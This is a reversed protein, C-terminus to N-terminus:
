ILTSKKKSVYQVMSWVEEDTLDYQFGVNHTDSHTVQKVIMEAFRDTYRRRSGMFDLVESFPKECPHCKFQRRNVKLVVSKDFLNLDRVFHWHNQHLHSSEQLCRPCVSKPSHVEVELVIKNGLDSYDEVDIGPLGLLQTITLQMPGEALAIQFM